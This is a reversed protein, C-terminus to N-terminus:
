FGKMTIGELSQRKKTSVFKHQEFKRPHTTLKWTAQYLKVSFNGEREWCCVFTLLDMALFTVTHGAGRKKSFELDPKCLGQAHQWGAALELSYNDQHEWFWQKMTTIWQRQSNQKNWGNDVIIGLRRLLPAAISVSHNWKPSLIKNDRIVTRNCKLWSNTEAKVM